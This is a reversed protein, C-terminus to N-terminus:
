QSNTETAKRADREAFERNLKENFRKMGQAIGSEIYQKIRAKASSINEASQNKGHKRYEGDMWDTGCTLCVCRWGYWDQFEGLCLRRVKCRPCKTFFRSWADLTPRCIVINEGIACTM